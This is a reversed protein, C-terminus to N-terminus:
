LNHGATNSANAAIRLAPVRDSGETTHSKLQGPTSSFRLLSAAEKPMGALDSTKVPSSGASLCRSVLASFVSRKRSVNANLPWPVTDCISQAATGERVRGFTERERERV